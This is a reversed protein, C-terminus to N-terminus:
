VTETEAAMLRRCVALEMRYSDLLGALGRERSPQCLAAIETRHTRMYAAEADTAEVSPDPEHKPCLALVASIGMGPKLDDSPHPAARQRELRALRTRLSHKM